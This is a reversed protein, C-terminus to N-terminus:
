YIQSFKHHISSNITGKTFGTLDTEYTLTQITLLEKQHMSKGFRLM